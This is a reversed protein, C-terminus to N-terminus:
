LNANHLSTSVVSNKMDASVVKNSNRNKNGEELVEKFSNTIIERMKPFPVAAIGNSLVVQRKAVFNLVHYFPV